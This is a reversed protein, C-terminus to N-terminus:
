ISKHGNLSLLVHWTVVVDQPDGEGHLGKMISKLSTSIKDLGRSLLGAPAHDKSPAHAKPASHAPSTVQTDNPYKYPEDGASITTWGDEPSFKYDDEYSHSRAHRLEAVDGSPSAAHALTLSVLATLVSFLM